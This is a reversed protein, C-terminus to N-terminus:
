WGTVLQSNNSAWDMGSTPSYRPIKLSPIGAGGGNDFGFAQPAKLSQHQQYAGLGTQALGLALGLGSPGKEMQPKQPAMDPQPAFAVQDFATENEDRLQRRIDDVQQQYGEKSSALSAAKTANNRGFAAMVSDDLRQATRGTQGSAAMQGTSELLKIMDGQESFAAAKFQENLQRQARAYGEQAAFSNDAITEDYNIKDNEWQSTARKWNNERVKLQHKYNAIRGANAANAADQQQAHGAVSSAAGLVGSIISVPECVAFNL